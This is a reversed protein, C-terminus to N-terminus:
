GTNAGLMVQRCDYRDSIAGAQLAYILWPLSGAIALGAILTPSRTYGIAILPLSVKLVGDALNSLGASSWLRWYNRGLSESHEGDATM